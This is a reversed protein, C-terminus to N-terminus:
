RILSIKKSVTFTDTSVKIFYIGSAINKSSYNNTNWYTIHQGAPHINDAIVSVLCGKIDYAKVTVKVQQQLSFQIRVLAHIKDYVVSILNNKLVNAPKKDKIKVSTEASTRILYINRTSDPYIQEYKEGLM